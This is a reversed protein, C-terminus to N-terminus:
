KTSGTDVENSEIAENIMLAGGTILLSGVGFYLMAAPKGDIDGSGRFKSTQSGRHTVKPKNGHLKSSQSIDIVDVFTGFSRTEKSTSLETNRQKVMDLEERLRLNELEVSKLRSTMEEIQEPSLGTERYKQLETLLEQNQHQM